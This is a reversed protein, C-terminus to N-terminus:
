LFGLSKLHQRITAEDTAQRADVGLARASSVNDSLDDLFAVQIADLRARELARRYFGPAPKAFGLEYSLGLVVRESRLAPMKQALRDFHIPDTNSWILLPGTLSDLLAQAYSRPQVMSAWAQALDQQSVGAGEAGRAVFEDGSIRGCSVSDHLGSAFLADELNGPAKKGLARLPAFDVSVLVGGLDFAVKSPPAPM